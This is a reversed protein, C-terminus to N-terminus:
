NGVTVDLLLLNDGRNITILYRKFIYFDFSENVNLLRSM